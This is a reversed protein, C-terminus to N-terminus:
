ILDEFGLLIVLSSLFTFCVFLCFVWFEQGRKVFVKFVETNMTIPLKCGHQQGLHSNPGPCLYSGRIILNGPLKTGYVTNSVSQLIPNQVKDPHM